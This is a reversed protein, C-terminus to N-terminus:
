DGNKQLQRVPKAASCAHDNYPVYCEDFLICKYKIGSKTMISNSTDLRGCDGCEKVRRNAAIEDHCSPLSDAVDNKRIYAKIRPQKM